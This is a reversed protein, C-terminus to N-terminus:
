GISCDLEMLSDFSHKVSNETFIEDMSIRTEGAISVTM